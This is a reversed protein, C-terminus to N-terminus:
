FGSWFGTWGGFGGVEWVGGIWFSKLFLTVKDNQNLLLLLSIQYKHYNDYKRNTSVHVYKLMLNQFINKKQHNDLFNQWVSLSLSLRKFTGVSKDLM